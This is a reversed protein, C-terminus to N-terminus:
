SGPPNFYDEELSEAKKYVEEWLPEMFSDINEKTVILGGSDIFVYDEKPKYGDALFKLYLASIYGHMYPSQEFTGTVYGERIADLVVPDDDIGVYAIKDNEMETLILSAAVTPVYGTTIMGDLEDGLAAIANSIKETGEEQSTIGAIEQIIKVDPYNAVVEEIGEKRLTTNTDEVLELINLINGKEGMVEIVKECAAKAAEKVDTAVTASATTPLATPVGENVVHVGQATIEEYLSNAGNFDVPYVVLKNYGQSVLGEIFQNETEQTWDTGYQVFVEIGYDETFKEIGKTVSEFYPHPAPFFVAFKYEVEESAEEAATEEQVAEEAATEEQVAEEAATEERCSILSFSLFMSMIAIISLIIFINRKM